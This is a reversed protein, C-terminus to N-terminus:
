ASAISSSEDAVGVQNPNESVNDVQKSPKGNQSKKEQEKKVLM